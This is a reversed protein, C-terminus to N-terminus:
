TSAAVFIDQHSHYRVRSSAMSDVEGVDDSDDYDNPDYPPIDNLPFLTLDVRGTLSEQLSRLVATCYSQGRISGSMGLLRVPQSIDTM